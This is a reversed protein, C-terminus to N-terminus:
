YKEKSMMVMWFDMMRGKQIVKMMELYIVMSKMVKSSDKMKAM